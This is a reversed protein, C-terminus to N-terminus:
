PSRALTLAQESLFPCQTSQPLRMSEISSPKTTQRSRLRDMSTNLLRSTAPTRRAEPKNDAMADRPWPRDSSQEEIRTLWPGSHRISPPVYKLESTDELRRPM